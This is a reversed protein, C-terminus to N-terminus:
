YDKVQAIGFRRNNIDYYLGELTSPPCYDNLSFYEGNFEEDFQSLFAIIQKENLIKYWANYLCMYIDRMTFYEKQSYYSFAVGYIEFTFIFYDIVVFENNISSFSGESYDCVDVSIQKLMPIANWVVPCKGYACIVEIYRLGFDELNM